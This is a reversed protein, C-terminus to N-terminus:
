AQALTLGCASCSGLLEWQKGKKCAALSNQFSPYHWKEALGLSITFNHLYLHAFILGPIRNELRHFPEGLGSSFKVLTSDHHTCHKSLVAGSANPSQSWLPEVIVGKDKGTHKAPSSHQCPHELLPPRALCILGYISCQM